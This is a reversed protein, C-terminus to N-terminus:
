QVNSGGKTTHDHAIAASIRDFQIGARAYATRVAQESTGVIVCLVSQDEPVVTTQLVRIAEAAQIRKAFTELDPLRYGPLYHEVLFTAEYM